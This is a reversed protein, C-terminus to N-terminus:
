VEPAPYSTADAYVSAPNEYNVSSPAPLTTQQQTTITEQPYMSAQNSAQNAAAKSAVHQARWAGSIILVILGILGAILSAWIWGTSGQKQQAGSSDINSLALFGFIGSVIVLGFLLIFVILHPIENKIGWAVHGFYLIALIIGMGVAIYGLIYAILLNNKASNLKSNGTKYEDITMVKSQAVTMFIAGVLVLLAFLLLLIGTYRHQTEAM